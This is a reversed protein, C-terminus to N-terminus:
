KGIHVGGRLHTGGKLYVGPEPESTQLIAIAADWIRGRSFGGAPSQKRWEIYWTGAADPLARATAVMWPYRDNYIGQWPECSCECLKTGDDDFRVAALTVGTTVNAAITATAILVHSQPNPTISGTTVATTWATTSPSTQQARNEAYYYAPFTDLRLAYIEGQVLDVRDGGTNPKVEITITQSGSLGSLKFMSCWPRLDDVHGVRMRCESYDTGSHVAKIWLKRSTTDIKARGSCLILYDGTTGPTFTLTCKAAYSASTTFGAGSAYEDLPDMEMVLSRSENIYLLGIAM